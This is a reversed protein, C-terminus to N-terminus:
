AYDQLDESQAEDSGTQALHPAPLQVRVQFDVGHALHETEADLSTEFFDDLDEFRNGSYQLYLDSLNYRAFDVMGNYSFVYATPGTAQIPPLELGFMEQHQQMRTSIADDWLESVIDQALLVSAEDSLVRDSTVQMIGTTKALGVHALAREIGRWVPGRNFDEALMVAFFVARLVPDQLYRPQLLSWHKGRMARLRRSLEARKSQIMRETSVNSKVWMYAFGLALLWFQFTADKPDPVIASLGKSYSNAYFYYSLAISLGAQALFLGRPILSFWSRTLYYLWRFAWYFATVLWIGQVYEGLSLYYLGLSTLGLLVVPAFVRFAANFGLTSSQLNALFTTYGLGDSRQGVINIIFFFAAALAVFLVIHWPTM